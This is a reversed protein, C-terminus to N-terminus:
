RRRRLMPALTLLGLGITAYTQPEPVPSESTIVVDISRSTPRRPDKLM